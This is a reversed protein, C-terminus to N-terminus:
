TCSESTQDKIADDRLTRTHLKESCAMSLPGTLVSALMWFRAKGEKWGRTNWEPAVM